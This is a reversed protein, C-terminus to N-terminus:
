PRAAAAMIERHQAVATLYRQRQAPDRLRDARSLLDRQADALAADARADGTAKLARWVALPIRMPEDAGDISAGQERRALIAQAHALAEAAAGRSLAEETLAAIAELALHGMKLDDFLDRSAVFRSRAAEHHGLALEAQGVVRLAAAEAWRDGSARLLELAHQARVRSAEPQALHLLVIGLNIDIISANQQHGVRASFERAEEFQTKAQEFDGVSMAAFALNALTGGINVLHGERRHIALAQEFHAVAALLDGRGIELIGQHNVITAELVTQGAARALRLAAEFAPLAEDYRGLRELANSAQCHARAQREIDDAPALAVARRASELAAQANGAHFEIKARWEAAESRWGDDAASEALAEMVALTEAMRPRDSLSQLVRLRLLSLALRRPLDREDTLALAREAHALAQPNAFRLRARDAARHWADRALEREGGREHHEAIEDQLADAAPQAALWRALAAHATRKVRKLVSDYAVRHLSHHRFAYEDAGALRSEDHPRILERTVLEGLGAVALVDLAALAQDWFVPGAVAALQLSRRRDHPLADLRAQLVGTLTAPLQLTLLSPAHLTWRGDTVAIAGKDILMNVLEEMFFPNGEAGTAVLASLQAPVEPLHQLLANALRQSTPTDLAVLDIRRADRALTGWSPRREFLAPRTLGVLLMPMHAHAGLLHDVFDLSGDDAWHLDDLTLVLPAADAVAHGLLQVAHFFARDRLAKADARLAHVEPEDAFDLGLLYGLVAASGAHGLAPTLASLWTQRAHETSDSDRLGLRTMFIERMLGYPRGRSRENARAGVRRVGAPQVVVWREFEDLVRTKGLGADGVITLLVLGAEGSSVQAYAQQMLALESDRGLMPANVGAVGRRAASPPSAVTGRVLYTLMPEDNGKVILPPQADVEFLGRVLRWTDHSIRLTGPPASQEMRAAMNVSSGRISHEGDVGGGILVSGSSLGVRVGFGAHGHLAQVRAAQVLAERLLALGALVAREADDEHVEDAGFAALMSDGAYQLVRGGHQDVVHAFAALAGDIVAQIDEPDLERSMATSGVVDLFLVSVQRLQQAPQAVVDRLAALETRLPALAIELVADGLLARQGELAAIAHELQEASRSM